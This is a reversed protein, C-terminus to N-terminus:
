RWRQSDIVRHTLFLGFVIATGFYVLDKTDVLGKVLSEFHNLPSLYTLIKGVISEGFLQGAWEFLWLLLLAGFSLIVAIIQNETFGSALLGASLFLGGLLLIGLYATLIPTWRFDAFPALALAGAASLVLMGAFVLLAAAFKGIVLDSITVPSTLLLEMTKLKKEEALLRMTLIPVILLLVVAMNYFVPRFVMENINLEPMNGQLRLMQMSRNSAAYVALYSLFGILLLFVSGVVYAIPSVFYSRLEKRVVAGVPSM